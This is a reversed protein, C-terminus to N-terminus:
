RFVAGRPSLVSLSAGARVWGWSYCPAPSPVWEFFSLSFLHHQYLSQLASVSVATSIIVVFRCREPGNSNGKFYLVSTLNETCKEAFFASPAEKVQVEPYQGADRRTNDHKHQSQQLGNASSLCHTSCSSSVLRLSTRSTAYSRCRRTFCSSAKGATM